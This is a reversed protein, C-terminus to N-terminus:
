CEDRPEITLDPYRGFAQDAVGLREPDKEQGGVEIVLCKGVM